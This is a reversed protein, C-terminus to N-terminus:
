STAPVEEQLFTLSYGNLDRISFQRGGYFPDYLDEQFTIGGAVNSRGDLTVRAAELQRDKFLQYLRDIADTYFWLSVGTSAPTGFLNFMLEARGLSVMGFNVVGEDAYRAVEAFGISTYWELTAAVDPVSIMPVGKRVSRALAAVGSKLDGAGVTRPPRAGGAHLRRMAEQDGRLMATALATQGRNDTAELDAGLQILLDLLDYRQRDMAFHLPTWGGEFRSMHRALAEPNREVVGRIAEPDGLALASYIHHRAGRQLLLAVVDHPIDGPPAYITAWGIVDMEHVDGEGHVNSGADLLTRVTDLHGRAAAWHLPTTNDGAERANPDAGRALLLRVADLHAQQAATHLGTWGHHPAAPNEARVLSPEDTLLAGLADVDGSACGAFFRTVSDARRRDLEAKLARWSSFGHERAIALQATALRTQPDVSRLQRLREKALKKLYELSARDPLKANAM